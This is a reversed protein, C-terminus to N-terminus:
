LNQNNFTQYISKIVNYNTFAKLNLPTKKNLCKQIKIAHQGCRFQKQPAAM